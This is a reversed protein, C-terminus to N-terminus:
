SRYEDLFRLWGPRPKEEPLANPGDKQLLSAAKEATLGTDPDVDLSTAVEQPSASYWARATDPSTNKEPAKAAM